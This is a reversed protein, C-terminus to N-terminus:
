NFDFLYIHPHKNSFILFYEMYNANIEKLRQKEQKIYSYRQNVTGRDHGLRVFNRLLSFTKKLYHKVIYSIFNLTVM